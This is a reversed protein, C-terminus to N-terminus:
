SNLFQFVIMYFIILIFADKLLLTHHTVTESVDIAKIDELFYNNKKSNIIVFNKNFFM